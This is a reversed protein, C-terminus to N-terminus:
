VNSEFHCFKILQLVLLPLGAYGFPLRRGKGGQSPHRLCVRRALMYRM